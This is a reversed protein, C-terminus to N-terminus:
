RYWNLTEPLMVSVWSVGSARMVAPKKMGSPNEIPRMLIAPFGVTDSPVKPPIQTFSITAGVLRQRPGFQGATVRLPGVVEHQGKGRAVAVGVLFVEAQEVGM